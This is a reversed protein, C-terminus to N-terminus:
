PVVEPKPEMRVIFLGNNFDNVYALGNKVVVGWTMAANPLFGKPDVPNVMTMERGQARLDGRLEGGIDFARFGANYAGMYLTDGAVWVNHVGGFEPEYWAVSRPKTIDSVDLVQLRGYARSVKGNFLDTAAEQAFVEDAIFVYNKHRWATHTGRIFGPSNAQEVQKYLANLDYKYQSVFQPNSPSGGKIGNGIDLIVLGDNWWSGYLLGDQVDIDHVYRGIDSRPTKWQSVEKPHAPDNIDIVHVTGIADNTLYIHTGYRPQTYIFASHVGGTVGTTFESIVKPHLPDETSCIVIGNKRDAAGERTFVLVKGDASTMIDNVLRTNAMVSDVIVPAAPNSIDIAYFRDGGLHTGLYAVKGNPHVWVESTPFKTRVMTGVITAKRRVDRAAVTITATGVRNGLQATVAYTGPEYAVFAGDPDVQGQGPAFSWTPTLGGIAAGSADKATATFRVVDGTRAQAAGPTVTVSALTARPVELDLTARAAGASATVTAKGPAVAELIGDGVVKVVGPASSTWTPVDPRQDGNAALVRRAIRAVQGALLRAPRPDLEIRAAPGPVVQVTVRQIVPKQGTVVGSVVIPSPGMAVGTFLGERNVSGTESQSADAYLIKAGEVAKGQADVLQAKIRVTDGVAVSPRAPTIVLRASAGQQARLAPAALAVVFVFPIRHRLRM